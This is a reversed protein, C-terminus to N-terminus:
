QTKSTSNNFKKKNKPYEFNLKSVFGFYKDTM